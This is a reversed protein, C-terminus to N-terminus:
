DDNLGASELLERYEDRAYECGQWNDVGASELAELWLAQRRLSDYEEQTITVTFHDAIPM